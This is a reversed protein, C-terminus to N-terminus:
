GTLIGDGLSSWSIACKGGWSCNEGGASLADTILSFSGEGATGGLLTGSASETLGGGNVLEDMIGMVEGVM